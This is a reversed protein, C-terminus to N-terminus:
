KIIQKFKKNKIKKIYNIYYQKNEDIGCKFM